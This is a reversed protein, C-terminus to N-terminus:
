TRRPISFGTLILGYYAAVGVVAPTPDQLTFGAQLTVGPPLILPGDKTYYIPSRRIPALCLDANDFMELKRDKVKLTALCNLLRADMLDDLGFKTFLANVAVETALLTPRWFSQIQTIVLDGDTPIKYEAKKTLVGPGLLAELTIEVALLNSSSLRQLEELHRGTSGPGANDLPPPCSGSM